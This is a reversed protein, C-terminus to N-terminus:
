STAHSLLGSQLVLKIENFNFSAAYIFVDSQPDLGCIVTFIYYLHKYNSWQGRKELAKTPMEKFYPSSCDPFQGITMLYQEIKPPTGLDLTVICGLAPVPIM